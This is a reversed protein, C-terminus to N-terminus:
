RNRLQVERALDIQRVKGSRSHQSVKKFKMLDHTHGVLPFYLFCLIVCLKKWM